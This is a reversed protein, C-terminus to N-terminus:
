SNRKRHTANYHKWHTIDTAKIDKHWLWWDGYTATLGTYTHGMYVGNTDFVKIDSYFLRMNSSATPENMLRLILMYMYKDEIWDTASVSCLLARGLEWMGLWHYLTWQVLPPPRQSTWWLYVRMCSSAYVLFHNLSLLYPLAIRKVSM